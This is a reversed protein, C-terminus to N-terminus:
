PLTTSINSSMVTQSPMLDMISCILSLASAAYYRNTKRVDKGVVCSGTSSKQSYCPTRAPKENLALTVTSSQFEFITSFRKKINVETLSKISTNKHGCKRYKGKTTETIAYQEDGDVPLYKNSMITIHFM